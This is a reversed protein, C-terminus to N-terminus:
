ARQGGGVEVRPFNWGEGRDNAVVVPRAPMFHRDQIEALTFWVKPPDGPTSGHLRAHWLATM